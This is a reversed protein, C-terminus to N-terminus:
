AVLRHLEPVHRGGFDDAVELVGVELRHEGAFGGRRVGPPNVRHPEARIPRLEDGHARGRLPLRVDPHPAHGVALAEEAGLAVEPRNVRHRQKGVARLHENSKCPYWSILDLRPGHNQLHRPLLQRAFGSAAEYAAQPSPNQMCIRVTIKSKPLTTANKSWPRATALSVSNVSM